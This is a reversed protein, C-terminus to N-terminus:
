EDEEEEEDEDPDYPMGGAFLTHICEDVANAIYAQIPDSDIIEAALQDLDIGQTEAQKTLAM